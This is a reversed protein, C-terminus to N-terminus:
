KKEEPKRYTTHCEGCTKGLEGFQTAFGATDGAKGLDALTRAAASMKAAAAEFGARDSWVNPLADSEPTDSHPPFMTPIVAGWSAMAAAPLALKKVDDGRAIGAKVGLFAAITLHFGAQRAAVIKGHDMMGHDAMMRAHDAPSMGAMPPKPPKPPKPPMPATQALALGGAMVLGSLAVISSLARM